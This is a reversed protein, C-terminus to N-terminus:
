PVCVAPASDSRSCTVAIARWITPRQPVLSTMPGIVARGEWLSLGSRGPGLDGRRLRLPQNVFLHAPDDGVRVVVHERKELLVAVVELREGVAEDGVLGKALVVGVSRGPDRGSREASCGSLAHETL